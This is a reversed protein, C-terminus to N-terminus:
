AVAKLLLDRADDVTLMEGYLPAALKRAVQSGIVRRMARDSVWRGRELRLRTALEAVHAPFEELLRFREDAIYRAWWGAVDAGQRECHVQEHAHLEPGIEGGGPAYITDGWCFIVGPSHALPFAAAIEEFMPPKANVVKM